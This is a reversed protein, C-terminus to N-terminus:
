TRSSASLRRRKGIHELPLELACADEMRKEEESRWSGVVTETQRITRQSSGNSPHGTSHHVGYLIYWLSTMVVIVGYNRWAVIPLSFLQICNFIIGMFPVFPFLPAVFPRPFDPFDIRMKWMSVCVSIFAVLTGFSIIEGLMGLPFFAGILAGVIGSCITANVPTRFQPHIRSLLPPLLGDQSLTMTLRPMAFYCAFCVSSLGSITGVDILIRLFVPAGVKELAMIVPADVNLITYKVMGTLVLTVCVYLGSCILLTYIVGRPIDRQPNRCEQASACITDFGVNAFFVVGSGRLIGSIGYKGFYGENPPIFPTMNYVFDGWNTTAHYIGYLIFIGLVLFKIFVFFNNVTASEQVGLCLVVSCIVTLMMAPLDFLKGTLVFAGDTVGIPSGGIKEPFDISFERLFAQVSASWSVSVASGSVLCELTLCVAVIWSAYEGLAVAAHTYASGAVPLMAALEGYCLATFLCPFVCLLFSISLAPGAYLAAAQGTIVFVGAGVVAGVGLSVLSRLGLTRRFQSNELAAVTAYLCRRRFINRFFSVGLSSETSTVLDM